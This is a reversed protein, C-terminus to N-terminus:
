QLFPLFTMVLCAVLPKSFTQANSIFATRPTKDDCMVLEGRGKGQPGYVGHCSCAVQGNGHDTFKPPEVKVLTGSWNPKGPNEFECMPNAQMEMDCAECAQECTAKDTIPGVGRVCYTTCTGNMPTISRVAEANESCSAASALVILLVICLARFM